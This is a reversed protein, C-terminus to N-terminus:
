HVTRLAKPLGNLVEHGDATVAVLDEIRVGGAGPVYIGPEVTVINGAVLADKGQKSLRPGEHVEMGVGHGLGHGFHEAHGADDIIARAVADVEQGTPGARVAALAAEQAALVTDYIERDRPDLDGATAVTRTCDSAYGDLQAGWDIVVLTGAPIPVARPVAHPLAGHAGAAVIPPFSAGEAGRRRMAVELDLAVDREARGVIGAGVVEEFAEDALEAAARIREIEDPDKVARLQEVIAGAAVLEIDREGILRELRAHQAVTVHADDFGLKLPGDPLGDTVRKLLDTEIEREWVPDLQAAAQTLYRFDTVFRATEAGVVAAGNSGTFGTLWRLNVLNSVLLAGLEREAVKARVAELRATM